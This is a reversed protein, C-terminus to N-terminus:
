DYKYGTHSWQYGALPTEPADMFYNLSRNQGNFHITTPFGGKYFKYNGSGSFNIRDSVAIGNIEHNSDNTEITLRNEGAYQPATKGNPMYVVCRSRIRHFNIYNNGGIAIFFMRPNTERNKTGIYNGDHWWGDGSIDLTNNGMLYFFVRGSGVIEIRSDKDAYWSITRGPAFVIHMDNGNTHFKVVVEASAGGWGDGRSLNRDITGSSNVNYEIWPFAWLFGDGERININAANGLSPNLSVPNKWRYADVPMMAGFSELQLNNLGTAAAANSTSQYNKSNERNVIVNNIPSIGSAITPVPINGVSIASISPVGTVVASPTHSGNNYGVPSVSVTNMSPASGSQSTISSVSPNYPGAGSGGTHSNVMTPCWSQGAISSVNTGHLSGQNHFYVNNTGGNLGGAGYSLFGAYHDNSSVRLYMKIDNLQGLSTSYTPFGSRWCEVKAVIGFRIYQGASSPSFSTSTTKYEDFNKGKRSQESGATATVTATFDDRGLGSGSINGIQLFARMKIEADAVINNNRFEASTWTELTLNGKLMSRYMDNDMKYTMVYIAYGYSDRDNRRFTNSNLTDNGGNAGYSHNSSQYTGMNVLTPMSPQQYSYGPNGYNNPPGWAFADQIYEPKIDLILFVMAVIMITSIFAMSKRIIKIMRVKM